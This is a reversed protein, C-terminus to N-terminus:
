DKIKILYIGPIFKQNTAWGFWKHWIKKTDYKKADYKKADYKKADNKQTMKKRWKKADSKQTM